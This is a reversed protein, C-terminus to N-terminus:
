SIFLNKLYNSVISSINSYKLSKSSILLLVVICMSFLNALNFIFNGFIELDLVFLIKKISIGLNSSLSFSKITLIHSCTFFISM